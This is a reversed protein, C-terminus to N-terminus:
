PQNPLLPRGMAQKQHIEAAILESARVRNKWGPHTPSAFIGFGMTNGYRRWFAPAKGPDFGARAMLYMAYYDAEIETAKVRSANSGLSRLLGNPVGQEKLRAKHRLINHAMEHAVILALEDDGRVYEVLGSTLQVYIGDAGGKLMTSPVLQVRSVCGRDGSFATMAQESGRRYGIAVPGKDLAAELAEEFRQVGDFSAKGTDLQFLPRVDAGALTLIADGVRLGAREAAGGPPLTLILPWEGLGFAATASGRSARSYQSLHHISFGALSRTAPCLDANAVALRHSIAAVRSDLAQLGLLGAEVTAASADPATAAAPSAFALSTAAILLASRMYRSRTWPFNGSLHFPYCRLSPMADVNISAPNM